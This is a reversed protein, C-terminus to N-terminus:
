DKVAHKIIDLHCSNHQQCWSQCKEAIEKEEYQLGCAPCQYLIKNNQKIIKVM